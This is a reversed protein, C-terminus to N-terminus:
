EGPPVIGFREALRQRKIGFASLLSAAEGQAARMQAEDPAEIRVGTIMTNKATHETSIFEFVQTRYGAGELLRARVADTLLEAMREKQIGDRLLPEMGAPPRLQPRIEKHCCPASVIVTAGSSAAHFLADDTATDCAHLAIVVGARPIETGAISGAIFRLGTCGHTSAAANCLEVLEPRAEIGTVSVAAGLNKALHHWVGFTLYGKGSGMDVISVPGKGLLGAEAVLRDVIEVFKELQRFKGQMSELVVGEPSALGLPAMWPADAPTIKRHKPRDHPRPALAAPEAAPGRTLRGEGKKNIEFQPTGAPTFLHASFLTVGLASEIEALAHEADGHKTVDQTAHRYLLRLRGDGPEITLKKLSSKGGRPKGLVLRRFTNKALSTRVLAM